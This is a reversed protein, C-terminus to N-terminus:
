WLIRVANSANYTAPPCWTTAPDRYYVMYYRMGGAAITHGLEASRAPISPEGAVPDPYISTGGSTVKVVLRLLCGGICRLGDGFTVGGGLLMDGQMYVHTIPSFPQIGSVVLVGGSETLLAGGTGASNQCGQGASGSNGCPCPAGTGDGFCFSAGPDVVPKLQGRLEGVPFPFTTSYVSVYTLGALIDSEQAATTAFSGTIGSGLPLTFMVPGNAGPLAPGHIHAATETGPLGTGSGGTFHIEYTLTHAVTDLTVLATGTGSSTNPPVVQTGQLCGHLDQVAATATACISISALAVSLAWRLALSSQLM